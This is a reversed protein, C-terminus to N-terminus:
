LPLKTPMGPGELFKLHSAKLFSDVELHDGFANWLAMEVLLGGMDMLFLPTDQVTVPIRGPIPYPTTNIETMGHKVM